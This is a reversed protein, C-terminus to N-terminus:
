TEDECRINFGLEGAYGLNVTAALPEGNFRGASFGGGGVGVFRENWEAPLWVQVNTDDNQGPHHYKVTVNCFNLGSSPILMGEPTGATLNFGEVKNATINTFQAGFLVPFSFSEKVCNLAADCGAALVFAALLFSSGHRSMNACTGLGNTRPWPPSINSGGFARSERIGPFAYDRIVM